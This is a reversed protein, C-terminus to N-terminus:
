QLLARYGGEMMRIGRKVSRIVRNKMTQDPLAWSALVANEGYLITAIQRYSRGTRRCDLAAIADRHRMGEVTWGTNPISLRSTQYLKALQRILRHSSEVNPFNEVVPELSFPGVRIDVGVCRVQAVRRSDAFLLFQEGSITKLLTKRCSFDSLAITGGFGPESTTKVYSAIVRQYDETRWFM